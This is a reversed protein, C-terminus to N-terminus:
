EYFLRHWWLNTGPIKENVSRTVNETITGPYLRVCSAQGPHEVVWAYVKDTSNQQTAPRTRLDIVDCGDTDKDYPGRVVDGTNQNPDQLLISEANTPAVTRLNTDLPANLSANTPGPVPQWLRGAALGLAFGVIGVVTIILTFSKM